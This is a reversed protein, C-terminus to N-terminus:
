HARSREDADLLAADHKAVAEGPLWIRAESYAYAVGDKYAAAERYLARIYKTARRAEELERDMLEEAELKALYGAERAKAENLKAHLTALLARSHRHNNNINSM